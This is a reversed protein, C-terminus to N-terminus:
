RIGKKAAAYDPPDLMEQFGAQPHLHGFSSFYAKRSM